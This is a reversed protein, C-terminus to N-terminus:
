RTEREIKPLDLLAQVGPINQTKIDGINGVNLQNIANIDEKFRQPLSDYLMTMVEESGGYHLSIKGIQPLKVTLTPYAHGDKKSPAKAFRCEIKKNSIKNHDYLATILYAIMQHKCEYAEAVEEINSTSHAIRNALAGTLAFLSIASKLKEPEINIKQINGDEDYEIAPKQENLLESYKSKYLIKLPMKIRDVIGCKTFDIDQFLSIDEGIEKNQNQKILEKRIAELREQWKGNKDDFSQIYGILAGRENERIPESNENEGSGFRIEFYRDLYKMLQKDIDKWYTNIHSFSM